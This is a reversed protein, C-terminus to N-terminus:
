EVIASSPTPEGNDPAYRALGCHLCHDAFPWHWLPKVFFPNGCAPCLWYIQYIRAVGCAFTAPLVALTFHDPNPGFWWELLLSLVIICPFWAIASIWFAWRRSRYDLWADYFADGKKLFSFSYGM